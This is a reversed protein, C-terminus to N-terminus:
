NVIDWTTRASAPALLLFGFEDAQARLVDIGRDANRSAGHLSLVLPAKAFKASSEPIYLLTDRDTRIGLSQLGSKASAPGTGPRSSLRNAGADPPSQAGLPAALSALLLSRRSIAM